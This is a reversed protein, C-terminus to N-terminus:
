RYIPEMKPATVRDSAALLHLEGCSLIFDRVLDEKGTFNQPGAYPQAPNWSLALTRVCHNEFFFSRTDFSSAGTAPGIAHKMGRAGQRRGDRNESTLLASPGEALQPTQTLVLGDWALGRARPVLALCSPCCAILPSTVPETSIQLLSSGRRGLVLESLPCHPSSNPRM